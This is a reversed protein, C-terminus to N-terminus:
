EYVFTAPTEGRRAFALLALLSCFEGVYHRNFIVKLHGGYGETSHTSAFTSGPNTTGAPICFNSIALKYM